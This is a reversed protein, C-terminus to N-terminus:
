PSTSFDAEEFPIAQEWKTEFLAQYEHIADTANTVLSYETLGSEGWSSYHMNQSGIILMRGDILTSKAHVKGNYFRVEVQDRLGRRELEVFLVNAAVRNELGNSNSTEVIARVKVGNESVAAIVADMWPLSNEISCVDPFILNAMCIMELSFNVHIMDITEQASALSTSIFTDAEKYDKTRYISFANDKGDIPLYTRLVEPVHDSTAVVEKCTDEWDSNDLPHFDDCHIQDAGSWMDDFASIADQAAPGTIQMGLDLMDFGQGSPHDLPLHLYGFNYGVGLVKKGDVVVFKTHSHPYTGPFNAIELRWGIEPDIMSEVGAERIDKIVAYIQDGYTFTSLEPYNGLLIKVTLGRPFDEPNNKVKQYMSAVGRALVSGPSPPAYNPEYQMTTFLVEYQAEGALAALYDFAGDRTPPLDSYQPEPNPTYDIREYQNRCYPIETGMPRLNM